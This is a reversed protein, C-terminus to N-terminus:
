LTVFTNNATPATKYNSLLMKANKVGTEINTIANYATFNLLVLMKEGDGTRSYAYVDPNDKDLLTYRGYVFVPHNKRLAVVKLFYNLVSNADKNEADKNITTYNPNVKIWPTGTTFGANATNNWQFPTRGNDRSEFAKLKMFKNLDGGTNKERKYANLTQVDRYDKISDFRVNTMGLEDGNYYYPTGRM